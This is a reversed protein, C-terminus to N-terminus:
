SKTNYDSLLEVFNLPRFLADYLQITSPNPSKNAFLYWLTFIQDSSFGRSISLHIKINIETNKHDTMKFHQLFNQM